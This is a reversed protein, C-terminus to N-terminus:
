WRTRKPKLPTYGDVLPSPGDYSLSFQQTIDRSPWKQNKGPETEKGNDQSVRQSTLPTQVILTDREETKEKLHNGLM